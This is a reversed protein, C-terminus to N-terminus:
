RRVPVSFHDIAVLEDLHHRPLHQRGETAGVDVLTQLVGLRKHVASRLPDAVAAVAGIYWLGQGGVDVVGQQTRVSRRGVDIIQAVLRRLVTEGRHADVRRPHRARFPPQAAGIDGDGRHNPEWEAGVSGLDLGHLRAPRKAVAGALDVHHDVDPGQFATLVVEHPTVDGPDGVGAALDTREVLHDDLGGVQAVLLLDDGAPEGDGAAGVVDLGGGTEPGAARGDEIDRQHALYHALLHAYLRGAADM